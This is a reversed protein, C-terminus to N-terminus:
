RVQGPQELHALEQAKARHGCGQCSTSSPGQQWMEERPGALPLLQQALGIHCDCQAGPCCQEAAQLLSHLTQPLITLGQRQPSMHNPSSLAPLAALLFSEIQTPSVALKPFTSPARPSSEAKPPIKIRTQAFM